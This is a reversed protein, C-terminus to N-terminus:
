VRKTVKKQYDFVFNLKFNTQADFLSLISHFVFIQKGLAEEIERIREEKRKM